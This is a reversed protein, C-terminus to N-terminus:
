PIRARDAGFGRHGLAATVASHAARRGPVPAGLVALARREVRRPRDPTHSAPHPLGAAPPGAQWAPGSRGPCRRDGRDPARVAPDPYTRHRTRRNAVNPFRIALAIVRDHRGHLGPDGLGAGEAPRMVNSGTPTARPLGGELLVALNGIALAPRLESPVGPKLEELRRLAMNSMVM